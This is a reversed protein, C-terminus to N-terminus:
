LSGQEHAQISRSHSPGHQFDVNVSVAGKEQVVLNGGLNPSGNGFTLRFWPLAQRQSFVYRRDEPHVLVSNQPCQVDKSILSKEVELSSPADGDSARRLLTRHEFSVPPQHTESAVVTVPGVVHNLHDLTEGCTAPRSARRRDSLQM